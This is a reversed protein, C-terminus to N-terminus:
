GHFGATQELKGLFGISEIEAANQLCHTQGLMRM